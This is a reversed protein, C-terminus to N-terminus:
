FSQRNNFMRLVNFISQIPYTKLKNKVQKTATFEPVYWYGELCNYYETEAYHDEALRKLKVVVAEFYPKGRLNARRPRIALTYKGCLPLRFSLQQDWLWRLGVVIDSSEIIPKDDLGIIKYGQSDTEFAKVKSNQTFLRMAHHVLVPNTHTTWGKKTETNENETPM